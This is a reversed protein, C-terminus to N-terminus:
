EEELICVILDEMCVGWLQQTPNYGVQHIAPALIIDGVKVSKVGSGISEVAWHEIPDGTKPIFIGGATKKEEKYHPKCVVWKGLAVPKKPKVDGIIPIPEKEILGKAGIQKEMKRLTEDQKAKQQEPTDKM